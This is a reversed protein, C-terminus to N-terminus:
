YGIVDLGYTEVATVINMVGKYEKCRSCISDWRDFIRACFVCVNDQACLGKEELLQITNM